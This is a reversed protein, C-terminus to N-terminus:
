IDFETFFENHILIDEPIAQPNENFLHLMFIRYEDQMQIAIGQNRNRSRDKFIKNINEPFVICSKAELSVADIVWLHNNNKVLIFRDDLYHFFEPTCMFANM